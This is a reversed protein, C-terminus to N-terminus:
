GNALSAATPPNVIQVHNPVWAVDKDGVIIQSHYALFWMACIGIIDLHPQHRDIRQQPMREFMEFRTKMM